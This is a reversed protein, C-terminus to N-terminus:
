PFLSPTDLYRDVRTKLSGDENIKIVLYYTDDLRYVDNRDLMLLYKGGIDAGFQKIGDLIRGKFSDDKGLEMIEGVQYDGKLVNEVQIKIKTISNHENTSYDLLTAIVINDYCLAADGVNSEIPAVQDAFAYQIGCFFVISVM